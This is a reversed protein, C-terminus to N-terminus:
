KYRWILHYGSGSQVIPSLGGVPCARTAQEFPRQMKGSAFEGLDGGRKYSSCDSRERAHKMFAELGGGETLIQARIQALESSAAEASVDATSENTRKSVPNRSGSWKILLHRAGFSEKPADPSTTQYKSKSSSAAAAATADEDRPRKKEAGSGLVVKDVEKALWVDLEMAKELEHLKGGKSWASVFKYVLSGVSPRCSTASADAQDRLCRSLRLHLRNAILYQALVNRRESLLPLAFQLVRKVQLPRGTHMCLAGEPQGCRAACRLRDGGVCEHLLNSLDLDSVTTSAGARLRVWLLRTGHREQDHDVEGKFEDAFRTPLSAWEDRFHEPVLYFVVMASANETSVYGWFASAEASPKEACRKGFGQKIDGLAEPSLLTSGDSRIGTEEAVERTATCVWHPDGQGVKGGLMGLKPTCCRQGMPLGRTGDDPEDEEQLLVWTSGGLRLMPLVFSSAIVSGNHDFRWRDTRRPHPTARLELTFPNSM